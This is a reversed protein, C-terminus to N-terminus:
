RVSFILGLGVGLCVCLVGLLMLGMGVKPTESDKQLSVDDGKSAIEKSPHEPEKSM